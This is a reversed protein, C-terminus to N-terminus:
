FYAVLVGVAVPGFGFVTNQSEVFKLTRKDPRIELRGVEFRYVEIKQIRLFGIEAVRPVAQDVEPRFRNEPDALLRM